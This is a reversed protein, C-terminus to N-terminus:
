VRDLFNEKDKFGFGYLVFYSQGLKLSVSLASFDQVYNAWFVNNKIEYLIFYFLFYYYISSLHFIIFIIIRNQM